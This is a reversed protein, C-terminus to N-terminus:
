GIEEFFQEGSGFHTCVYAVDVGVDDVRVQYKNLILGGDGLM